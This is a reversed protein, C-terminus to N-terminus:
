PETEAIATVPVADIRAIVHPYIRLRFPRNGVAPNSLDLDELLLVPPKGCLFQRHCQRGEERHSVSSVSIQDIGCVRVEPCRERLLAPVDPAVYPHDARYRDPDSSRTRSGGTRLLIARADGCGRIGAAVADATIAANGDPVIDICYAPTWVTEPGLCDAVTPGDPCFHFPADIHTGTHNQFAVIHTNASDGGAISRHSRFAVPPTGPYLPTDEKIPRSLLILM